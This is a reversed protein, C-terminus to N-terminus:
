LVIKSWSKVFQQKQRKTSGSNTWLGLTNVNIALQRIQV